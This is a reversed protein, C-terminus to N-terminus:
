EQEQNQNEIEDETIIGASECMKMIFEISEETLEVTIKGKKKFGVSKESSNITDKLLGFLNVFHTVDENVLSLDLINNIHIEM